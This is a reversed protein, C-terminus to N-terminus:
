SASRSRRPRATVVASRDEIKEQLRENMSEVAM